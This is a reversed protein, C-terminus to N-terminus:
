EDSKEQPLPINFAPAGESYKTVFADPWVLLAAAIAKQWAMAPDKRIEKHYTSMAARWVPEPVTDPAIM